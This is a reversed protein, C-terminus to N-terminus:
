DVAEDSGFVPFHLLHMRLRRADDACAFSDSLLVFAIRHNRERSYFQMAILGPWVTSHRLQLACKEHRADIWQWASHWQLIGRQGRQLYGCYGAYLFTLAILVSRLWWSLQAYFIAAIAM